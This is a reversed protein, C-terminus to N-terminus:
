IIKPGWADYFCINQGQNCQNTPDTTSLGYQCYDDKPGGGRIVGPVFACGVRSVNAGLVHEMHGPSISLDHATWGPPPTGAFGNEPYRDGTGHTNKKYADHGYRGLAVQEIANKRALEALTSDWTFEKLNHARRTVNHGDLFIKDLGQVAEAAPKPKPKPDEPKPKPDEPKPKPKPKAPDEPKPKQPPPSPPDNPKPAVITQYTPSFVISPAPAPPSGFGFLARIDEWSFYALAAVIASSSICMVFVMLLVVPISSSKKRM